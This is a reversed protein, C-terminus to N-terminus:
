FDAGKARLSKPSTKQRLGDSPPPKSSNSSNLGLYWGLEEIKENVKKLLSELRV